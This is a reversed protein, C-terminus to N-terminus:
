HKIPSPPTRINAVPKGSGRSQPRKASTDNYYESMVSPSLPQPFLVRRWPHPLFGATPWCGGLLGVRCTLKHNFYGSFVPAWLYAVGLQEDGIGM